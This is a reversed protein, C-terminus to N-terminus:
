AVPLHVSFTTSGPESVVEIRGKHKEVVRKVIHLGLGSGQGQQRTTFFPDFIQGAIDPSVGRGSDTFQVISEGEAPLIDIRITGKGEVALIANHLLNRWVQDIEELFVPVTRQDEYNKVLEIGALEAAYIHLVGEVSDALRIPVRVETGNDPSYTKLAAMIKATKETASAIANNNHQLQVLNAALTLLQAASPQLLLNRYAALNDTVNLTVLKGALVDPQANAGLQELETQLTRRLSREEKTSRHGHRALAHQLLVNFEQLVQPPLQQLQLPLESLLEPLFRQTARATAGIASIPTNIEHAISAVLQGMTALKETQILKEQANNLERLTKELEYTQRQLTTNKAALEENQRAISRNASELEQKQKNVEKTREAIREELWQTRLWNTRERWRITAAVVGGVTVLVLLLMIATFWATQTFRPELKIFLRAPRPNWVGDNNAAQVEFTYNGPGLNTYFAQRRNRADVWDTDYGQLRYRFRVAQPVRLSLGTYRIELANIGPALQVSAPPHLGLSDTVLEEIWVQPPYPNRQLGKPSFGVVGKMTPYWLRGDAARCVAPAFGGACENSRLGEAKEIHRVFTGTRVDKVPLGRALSDLASKRLSFIGRLSSVWLRGEDDETISQIVESPLGHRKGFTFVADDRLRCLGDSTGVWLVGSKDAYLSLIYNSSLGNGTTYTAFIGDALRSLGNGTGVWLNGKGDHAFSTIDDAALGEQSTYRRFVGDKFYNIGGGRTGIWVTGTPDQLLATVFNDTLGNGRGYVAVGGGRVVALGQYTGIWLAGSRDELLSYVDSSPLGESTTYAVSLTGNQLRNVGTRTAILLGNQRTQIIARVDNRLLGEATNYQMLPTDRFRLLQGSYTACWLSGEHDQWLGMVGETAQEESPKYSSFVPEGDKEKLIRNLTLRTGFWITGNAERWLCRVERGTMGPVENYLTTQGKALRYLGNYAGAWVTGDPEELVCLVQGAGTGRLDLVLRFSGREFVYLGRETGVYLGGAKRVCVATVPAQRENGPLYHNAVKGGKIESLGARTGVWISGGDDELLSYCVNDALGEETTYTTFVNDKFRAVGASRTAVWLSTDRGPWLKEILNSKLDFYQARNVPVFRAGDFRMLGEQTGFWIYGDATQVISTMVNQPLGEEAAWRQQVYQSIAKTPDLPPPTSPQAVVYGCAWWLCTLKCALIRTGIYRM